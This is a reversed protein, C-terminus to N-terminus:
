RLKTFALWGVFVWFTLSVGGVLVWTSRRSWRRRGAEDVPTASLEHLTSKSDPPQSTRENKPEVVGSGAKSVVMDGAGLGVRIHNVSNGECNRTADAM